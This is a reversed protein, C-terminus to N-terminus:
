PVSDVFTPIISISFDDQELIEHVFHNSLLFTIFSRAYAVAKIANATGAGVKYKQRVYVVIM